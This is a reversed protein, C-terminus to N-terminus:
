KSKQKTGKFVAIIPFPMPEPQITFQLESEKTNITGVLKGKIVFADSKTNIIGSLTYTDKASVEVDVDRIVIDKLGMNQLGAFGVLTVELKDNDQAKIAVEHDKIPNQANGNVSLNLVGKHVGIVVEELTAPALSFTVTLGGMVSPVTFVLDVHTKDVNLNGDLTCDYEKEAQGQMGMRVKGNGKLTYVDAKFSVEAADITFTGWVSSTFAIKSTGDANATLIIKENKTTQPTESYKHKAVSIGEYNGQVVEAPSKPSDDNDCSVMVLLAFVLLLNFKLKM